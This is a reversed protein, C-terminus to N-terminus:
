RIIMIATCNKMGNATNRLAKKSRLNRVNIRDQTKSVRFNRFISPLPLRSKPTKPIFITKIGERRLRRVVGMLRVISWLIRSLRVGLWFGKSIKMSLFPFM